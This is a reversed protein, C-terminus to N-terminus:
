LFRSHLIAGRELPAFRLDAEFVRSLFMASRQLASCAQGDPRYVNPEAPALDGEKNPGRAGEGARSAHKSLTRV